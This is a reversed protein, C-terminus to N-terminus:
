STFVELRKLANNAKAILDDVSKAFVTLATDDVFSTICVNDVYFRMM